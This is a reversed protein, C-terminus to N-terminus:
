VAKRQGFAQLSPLTKLKGLVKQVERHAWQKNKRYKKGIQEYNMQPCSIGYYLFLLNKERRSLEKTTNEVFSMSDCNDCITDENYSTDPLDVQKKIGDDDTYTLGDCIPTCIEGDVLKGLKEISIGLFEACRTIAEENQPIGYKNVYQEYKKYLAYEKDPLVVANAHRLCLFIEKKIYHTAYSSFYADRSWDFANAAEILGMNGAQILDELPMGKDSYRKAVTVVLRLNGNILLERGKQATMTGNVVSHRIEKEKDATLPPFHGVEKYYLSCIDISNDKYAKM